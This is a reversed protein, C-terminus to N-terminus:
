EGSPLAFASACHSYQKSRASASLLRPLVVAPPLTPLLQSQETLPLKFAASGFQSAAACFSTGSDPAPTPARPWAL